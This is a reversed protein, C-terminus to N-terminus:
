KSSIFMTISLCQDIRSLMYWEISKAHRNLIHVFLPFYFSFSNRASKLNSEDKILSYKIENRLLQKIIWTKWRSFAFLLIGIHIAWKFVIEFYQDTWLSKSFFVLLIRFNELMSFIFLFYTKKWILYSSLWIYKDVNIALKPYQM